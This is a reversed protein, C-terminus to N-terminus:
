VRTQGHLWSGVADWRARLSRRLGLVPRSVGLRWPSCLDGQGTPSKMTFVGAYLGPLTTQAHPESHKSHFSGCAWLSDFLHQTSIMLAGFIQGLLPSKLLFLVWRLGFGVQRSALLRILSWWGWLSLAGHPFYKLSERKGGFDIFEM